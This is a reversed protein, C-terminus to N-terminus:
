AADDARPQELQRRAGQVLLRREVAQLGVDFIRALTAPRGVFGDLARHRRRDQRRREEGAEARPFVVREALPEEGRQAVLEAAVGHLRMMLSTSGTVMTM